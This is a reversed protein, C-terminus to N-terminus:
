NTPAGCAPCIAGLSVWTERGCRCRIRYYVRQGVLSVLAELIQGGELVKIRADHRECITLLREAHSAEIKLLNGLSAARAELEWVRRDLRAIFHALEEPCGIRVFEATVEEVSVFPEEM